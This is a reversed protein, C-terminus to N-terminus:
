CTSASRGIQPRACGRRGRGRDRGAVVGAAALSGLGGAQSVALTMAPTSAGLMPAQMIPIPLDRFFAEARTM